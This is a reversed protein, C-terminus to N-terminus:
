VNDHVDRKDVEFSLIEGEFGLDVWGNLGDDVLRGEDAALVDLTELFGIGFLEAHLVADTAGVSGVGDVDGELGQADAEAVLDDGDGVAPDRGGFRDGLGAGPGDKHVDVLIEVDVRRLDFRPDRLFRLGNDGDMDEALRRVDFGDLLDAFLM